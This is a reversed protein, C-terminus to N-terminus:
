SSNSNSSSTACYINRQEHEETKLRSKLSFIIINSYITMIRGVHLGLGTGLLRFKSLFDFGYIVRRPDDMALFEPGM